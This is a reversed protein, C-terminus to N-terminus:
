QFSFEISHYGHAKNKEKTTKYDAIVGKQKWEEFCQILFDRCRKKEQKGKGEINNKKFIDDFTVVRRMKPHIRCEEIRRRAYNMLAIRDHSTRKMSDIPLMRYTILQDNKIKALTVLPSEDLFHIVTRSRSGNVSIGTVVKAPLISGYLEDGDVKYNMKRLASLDIRVTSSILHELSQRIMLDEKPGIRSGKDQVMNKFIHETTVYRMDKEYLSFCSMAVEREYPSFKKLPNGEFEVYTIYNWPFKKELINVEGKEFSCDSPDFIVKSLKDNPTTIKEPLTLQIKM